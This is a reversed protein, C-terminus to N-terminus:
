PFRRNPRQPNKRPSKKTGPRDPNQQHFDDIAESCKTLHKRPEWTNEEPGYGEWKVLYELRNNHQRSDMISEVEYINQDSEVELRDILEANEPAPELLSVHFIPHIKMGRPLSLKFNLDSIKQEIKFPGLKKFDLKESPRKTKINRRLLYVKDGEEFSPGKMRNKDYYKKMRHQILILDRQLNGQLERLKEVEQSAAQSTTTDRREGHATPNYGYNAYFPSMKMAENDSSNYAFQAMPLHKVWDNQEYNIYCRLYQELTQNLRETQGDTQPHYATSMKQKAGLLGVLSTWFKSTFLKDRDSIIQTPLGHKSVIEKMFIYALETANSSEKYPIFHAFKTLKDTTVLISDYTAGTLPERSKPLKVIFDWAITQWAGEPPTVPQLQGYPKHRSSKSKQCLDCNNIIKQVWTRANPFDYSRQLRKLTKYTGQHGHAPDEHIQKILEDRLETPIYLKGQYLRDEGTKAFRRNNRPNDAPNTKCAARIKDLWENDPKIQLTANLERTTPELHGDENTRLIAQYEPAVIVEHDHRRSLADARGNESGKRYIIECNFESLFESWRVQRKNLDKTTTFSTLNKHDTYVKVKHNTGSLYPKWEKFAEIVAMLEKDHIQYNLEPGQLAKSFFAVPHLKGEPDRQSLQGGIAYDSADTEVEFPKEPNAMALVPAATIRQKLENFAQEAKATWEFKLDKKTLETLDRAVKGYDKIFKRYFNALGLFGRVETVTTPTPWETIATIKSKQMEIKGPTITFGLFEVEKSHFNCKQPDVLLHNDRLTKLVKHVHERHEDLTESYILIDDLYVVVCVDLFARLVHDIMTQFTAPANTLGFPMVLYEFHGEQTRFATKWEEGEKMRILNYAGKLDLATFWKAKCLRDRLESILPLPYRNKVTINNLHRYDVCLRLKGNKKPVFLIPYGAPSTSPRIYGKALMEKLYDKLAQRQTPNLPYTKNFRPEEGEKIPIYHDWKNHEPLGTDLEEQFLESYQHYEEPIAAGLIPKLEKTMVYIRLAKTPKSTATEHRQVAALGRGPLEWQLHGTRWNVRPNSRRLWPIGLIIEHGSIDAIDLPLHETRAQITIPLHATEMDIMGNGYSVANGEVSTLRYPKRKKNWPLRFRNVVSPSIYNGQAGSDVMATLPRGM